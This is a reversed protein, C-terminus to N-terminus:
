GLDKLTEVLSELAWFRSGKVLLVDDQKFEARVYESLAEKTEVYIFNDSFSPAKKYAEGIFVACAVSSQALAELVLRHGRKTYSGLEKMEAFVCLRRKAQLTELYDLAYLCAKPNANYSDDIVLRNNSLAVHSLRHKSPKYQLLAQKIQEISLSFHQGIQELLALPQGLLSQAGYLYVDYGKKLAKTKLVDVYDHQTAIFAKRKGLREKEWLVAERFISAKEKALANESKFFEAHSFGVGTHVVLTPRVLQVLSSLDGPKRLGMEIILIETQDDASLLTLPVGIENNQNEKTAVVNYYQGLVTKLYDKITTKGFSGVVAIVECSLKKRYAKAFRTLDVNLIQSAGRKLAEDIFDAGDFHDGKVPIFVDGPELTRTDISVKM